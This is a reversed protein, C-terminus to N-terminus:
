EIVDDIDKGQIYKKDKVEFILLDNVEISIDSDNKIIGSTILNSAKEVLDLQMHVNELNKRKVDAKMGEIRIKREELQLKQDEVSLNNSMIALNESPLQNTEKEIKRAEAQTKENISQTRTLFHAEVGAQVKKFIDKFEIKALETKCKVLLNFWFSGKGCDELEVELDEITELGSSISWITFSIQNSRYNENGSFQINLLFHGPTRNKKEISGANIKTEYLVPTEEAVNRNSGKNFNRYDNQYGQIFELLSEVKKRDLSAIDLNQEKSIGAEELLKGLHIYIQDEPAFKKYLLSTIFNLFSTLKLLPSRNPESELIFPWVSVFNEVQQFDVKQNKSLKEEKIHIIRRKLIEAKKAAITVLRLLENNNIKNTRLFVEYTILTNILHDLSTSQDKDKDLFLTEDAM